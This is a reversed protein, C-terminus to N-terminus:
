NITEYHYIQKKKYINYKYLIIIISSYLAMNLYGTATEMVILGLLFFITEKLPFITKMKKFSYIYWYIYIACGILGREPLIQFWSSEAGLINANNGITKMANISGMGNGFLPNMYFLKKVIEFQLERGKVTSGGGEEALQPNFLSFLNDILSPFYTLALLLIIIAIFFVKINIIDKARLFACLFFALGVLPTKSNCALVGFLAMILSLFLIKNNVLNSKKRILAFFLFFLLICNAGYAIHISFFSNARVLGYRIEREGGLVPPIYYMRDKIIEPDPANIFIYDCVINNHTLVEYIGNTTLLILVIFCTKLFLIIDEKKSICQQFIAVLIFNTFFFKLISNLTSGSIPVIAFITSIAYSILYAIFLPKYFFKSNDLSKFLAKSNYKKFYFIIPLLLNICVTLSLVPSSYKLAIADNFLLQLPMWIIVMKKIDRIAFGIIVIFIIWYAIM